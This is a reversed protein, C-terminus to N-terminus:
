KCVRCSIDVDRTDLQSGWTRLLRAPVTASPPVVALLVLPRPEKTSRGQRMGAQLLLSKM